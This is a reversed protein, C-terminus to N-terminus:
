QIVQKRLYKLKLQFPGHNDYTTKEQQEFMEIQAILIHNLSPLTVNGNVSQLCKRWCNLETESVSRIKLIEDINKHQIRLHLNTQILALVVGISMHKAFSLFTINHNSIFSNNTIMLNPPHGILTTLGAINVNLIIFPLIPVPNLQLCEFLRITIPTILLITTVNDLFTSIIVCMVCLMNILRWVKGRSLKFIFIFYITLVNIRFINMFVQFIYVAISDFVGTDMLIAVLVMMSFILQLMEYDIWKMMENMTPRNNFAALAGISTFAALLAALTRHM